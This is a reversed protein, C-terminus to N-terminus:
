WITRTPTPNSPSRRPGCSQPRRSGRTRKLASRSTTARATQLSSAPRSIGSRCSSMSPSATPRLASRTRRRPAAAPPSWSRGATMWSTSSRPRPALPESEEGDINFFSIDVAEATVIEGEVSDGLQDLVDEAPVMQLRMETGAPFAGEPAEVRVTIGGVTQEFQQAPFTVPSPTPSEESPELTVVPEDPSVFCEPGHVHETLELMGCIRQGDEDFCDETHTHLMNETIEPKGCIAVQEVEYCEDTHTHAGEGEELGCILEETWAYCEDTHTHEENEELGCILEGRVAAYCEETHHHGESEEQGCVLTRSTVFCDEDHTHLEIEELPCRLVGYTDFCEPGHSHLSFGAYGPGQPAEYHCALIKEPATKAVGYQRLGYAVGLVALLAAAAFAFTWVRRRRKTRLMTQLTNQLQEM